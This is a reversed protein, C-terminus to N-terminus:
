KQVEFVRIEASQEGREPVALYFQNVEASFCSTRAGARTPIRGLTEYHDRDTQGIVDIFGEGCSAYFGKHQADYFLDDINDSVALDAVPKARATDFRGKVGPLPITKVLKLAAPEQALASSLLGTALAALSAIRKM